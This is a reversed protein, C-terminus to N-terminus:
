NKVNVIDKNQLDKITKLIKKKDKEKMSKPMVFGLLEEGKFFYLASFPATTIKDVQTSKMFEVAENNVIVIFDETYVVRDNGQDIFPTLFVKKNPINELLNKDDLRKDSILEHELCISAKEKFDELPISTRSSYKNWKEIFNIVEEEILYVGMFGNTLFYKGNEPEVETIGILDGKKGNKYFLMALDKGKYNV